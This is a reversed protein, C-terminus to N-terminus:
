VQESEVKRKLKDLKIREKNAEYWKAKKEALLVKNKERYLANNVKMKAQDTRVRTKEWEKQYATIKEKNQDRYEKGCKQKTEKQKEVNLIANYINLSPKLEKIWYDERALLEEKSNCPHTEILVAKFHKYGLELILKILKRNSVEGKRKTDQHHQDKRKWLPQCTSGIYVQDNLDNTMKYIKGNQYNPM